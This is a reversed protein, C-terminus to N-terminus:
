GYLIKGRAIIQTIFAAKTEQWEKIEQPTYVVLDLPIRMGRLYKRIERGRKIKEVSTDQIVLLDLDSDESPSGRPM